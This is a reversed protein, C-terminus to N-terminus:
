VFWALLMGFTVTISVKGVQLVQLNPTGWGYCFRSLGGVLIIEWEEVKWV